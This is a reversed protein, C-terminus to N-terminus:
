PISVNQYLGEAYLYPYRDDNSEFKGSRPSQFLPGGTNAYINRQLTLIQNLNGRDLPNFSIEKYNIKSKNLRIQNLNGRDLPNFRFIEHHKEEDFAIQNLNGRDLPNFSQVNYVKIAYCEGQLNIQNM